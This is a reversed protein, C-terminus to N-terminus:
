TPIVGKMNLSLDCYQGPKTPAKFGKASSVHYIEDAHDTPDWVFIWPTIKLHADWAVLFTDRLWTWTVNRLALPQSWEEYRVSQGLPQGKDSRNVTGHVTRGLPDFGLRLRRPLELKSGVAVIALSPMTTGTITIRWYQKTQETFTLLFPKDDTPTITAALNDDAAFNDTSYRVELTAGQAGLDHGYVVCYDAAKAPGCDITITAPLVTPQWWTYPRFDNINKADFDGDAATSAVPTGDAFRNDYLILSLGTM